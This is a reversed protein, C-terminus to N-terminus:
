IEVENLAEAIRNWALVCEQESDCYPTEIHGWEDYRAFWYSNAYGEKQTVNRITPEVGWLPLPPVPATLDLICWHFNTEGDFYAMYDFKNFYRVEATGPFKETLSGYQILINKGEVEEFTPKVTSWVLETTM